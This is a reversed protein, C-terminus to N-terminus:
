SCRILHVFSSGPCSVSSYSLGLIRLMHSTWKVSYKRCSVTRRINIYFLRRKGDDHRTKDQRIGDLRTLDFLTKEMEHCSCGMLM